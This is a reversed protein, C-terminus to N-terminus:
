GGEKSSPCLMKVRGGGPWRPVTWIPPQEPMVNKIADLPEVREIWTCLLECGFAQLVKM